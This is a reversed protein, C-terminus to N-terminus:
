SKQLIESTLSKLNQAPEARSTAHPAAAENSGIKM